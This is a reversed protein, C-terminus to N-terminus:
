GVAGKQGPLGDLGPQGPAGNLGPLGANGKEGRAGTLGKIKYLDILIYNLSINKILSIIQKKSKQQFFEFFDLKFFYM